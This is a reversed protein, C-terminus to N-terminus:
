KANSIDEKLVFRRKRSDYTVLGRKKLEVCLNLYHIRLVKPLTAIDRKSLSKFSETLEEDTLNVKEAGKM